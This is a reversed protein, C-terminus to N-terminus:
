KGLKIATAICNKSKIESCTFMDHILFTCCLGRGVTKDFSIKCFTGVTYDKRNLGLEKSVSNQTSLLTQSSGLRWKPECTPCKHCSKKKKKLLKRNMGHCLQKWSLYPHVSFWIWWLLTICIFLRHTCMCKWIKGAENTELNQVATDSFSNLISLIPAKGKM